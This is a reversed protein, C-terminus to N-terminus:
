GACCFDWIRDSARPVREYVRQVRAPGRGTAPAVVHSFVSKCFYSRPASISSGLALTLMASGALPVRRTGLLYPISFGIWLGLTLKLPAHPM